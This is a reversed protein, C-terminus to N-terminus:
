IDNNDNIEIKDNDKSGESKDFNNEDNEINKLIIMIGLYLHLRILM